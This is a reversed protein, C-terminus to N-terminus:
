SRAPGARDAFAEPDQLKLEGGVLMVFTGWDIMAIEKLGIGAALLALGLAVVALSVTKGAIGLLSRRQPVLFMGIVTLLLVVPLAVIFSFAGQLMGTFVTHPPLMMLGTLFLLVGLYFVGREKLNLKKLM